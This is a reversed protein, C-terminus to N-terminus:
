RPTASAPATWRLVCRRLADLEVPKALFDDMGAELCRQRDEAGANATLAVIPTRHWGGAKELDRWRRTAELGDLGPMQCDMLVLAWQGPAAMHLAQTGDACHVSAQGMQELMAGAVLANVPNDEVLLVRGPRAEASRAPEAAAPAPAALRPAACEFVFTSGGPGSEICRVEGGMARALQRSIPLGLGTGTVDQGGVQEFPEFIRELAEAPIGRGTDRVTFRLGGPTADVTLQVHGSPTFKIANGLLNHLVQRIRAADGQWHEPTGPEIGHHLLLGRQRALPELVQAVQQVLKSLEFPAPDVTLRGAEVRSLDLLDDILSKLHRSSQVLLEARQRGEEDGPAPKLLQALGLIGNLPTRLEHSVTALFRSKAASAQEADVLAQRRQEAIAANEHRLHSLATFTQQARKGELLMVAYFILLGIAALMGGRSQFELLYFAASPLVLVSLFAAAAARNGFLTFAGAAAVATVAAVLVGDLIPEGTPMFLWPMAGWTAADILMGALNRRYWWDLRDDRRPDRQYRWHTWLRWAGVGLKAALWGGALAWGSWPAVAWALLLAFVMGGVVPQTTRRFQSLVQDHRVAEAVQSSALPGPRDTM